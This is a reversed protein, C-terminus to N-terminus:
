SRGRRPLREGAEVSWPLDNGRLPAPCTGHDSFAYPLNVTDNLDLLLRDGDRPVDGLWLVRWPAHDAGEDSFLLSVGRAGAATLRLTRTTGDHTVDVEGVAQVHHQLGPQAGDVVEPRPEAYWRVPVDLLWAPDDAHRPVGDFGTRTPTLPDRVRLGLRGTRRVVEVAVDVRDLGDTGGVRGAPRFTAIVASGAEAVGLGVTGDDATVGDRVHLEGAADPRVHVGDEDTWWEGPLGPLRQAVPALWHLATLSLWGHPASLELERAAQRRARRVARDPDAHTGPTRDPQDAATTSATTAATTTAM